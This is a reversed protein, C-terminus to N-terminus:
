KRASKRAREEYLGKNQSYTNYVEDDVYSDEQPEVLAVSIAHLLTRIRSESNWQDPKLLGLCIQGTSQGVNLHYPIM